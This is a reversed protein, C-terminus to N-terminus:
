QLKQLKDQVKELLGQLVRYRERDRKDWKEIPKGLNREEIQFMERQNSDRQDDLIKFELRKEVLKLEESLAYRTDIYTYAGFFMALLVLVATIGGVIKIM